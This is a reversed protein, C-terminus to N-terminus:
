DRGALEARLVRLEQRLRREEEIRKLCLLMEENLFPKELYDIAGTKLAQVASEVSGYGTMVIVEIDPWKEKSRKLLELGDMGPMRIDAILCDFEQRQLQDLAALGTSAVTVEHGAGHLEDSLTVTISKEDDALLIKM